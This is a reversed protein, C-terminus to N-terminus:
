NKAKKAKRAEELRTKYRERQQAIRNKEFDAETKGPNAALYHGIIAKKIHDPQKDWPKSGGTNPIINMSQQGTAKSKRQFHVSFYLSALPPELLWYESMKQVDLFSMESIYEQSYHCETALRGRM